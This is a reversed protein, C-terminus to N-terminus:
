PDAVGRTDKCLLLFYRQQKVECETRRNNGSPSKHQKNKSGDPKQGLVSINSPLKHQSHRVHAENYILFMCM